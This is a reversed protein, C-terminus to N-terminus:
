ESLHRAAVGSCYGAAGSIDHWTLANNRGPASVMPDDPKENALISWPGPKKKHLYNGLRLVLPDSEASTSKGSLYNGLRLVWPADPDEDPPPTRATTSPPEVAAAAVPEVVTTPEAAAAEAAESM